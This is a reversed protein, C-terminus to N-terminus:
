ELYLSDRFFTPFYNFIHKLLFIDDIEFKESLKFDWQAESLQGIQVNFTGFSAYIHLSDVEVITKEFINQQM